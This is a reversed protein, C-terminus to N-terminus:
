QHADRGGNLGPRGGSRGRQRRSPQPRAPGSVSITGTNIFDGTATLSGGYVLLTASNTVSAVAGVTSTIQPDGQAITVDDGAGPLTGTSWDAATNWNGSSDTWTVNAM